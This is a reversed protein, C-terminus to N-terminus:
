PFKCLIHRDDSIYLDSLVLHIAFGPDSPNPNVIVGKGEVFPIFIGLSSYTLPAYPAWFPQLGCHDLPTTAFPEMETITFKISCTNKDPEPWDPDPFPDFDGEVRAEMSAEFVYPPCISGSDPGPTWDMRYNVLGTGRVRNTETREEDNPFSPDFYLIPAEEYIKFDISGVWKGVNSLVGPIDTTYGGEITIKGGGFSPTNGTLFHVINSFGSEVRGTDKGAKVGPAAAKGVSAYSKTAVYFAAGDWLEASLDTQGGLDLTGIYDLTPYPAYYLVYGEADPVDAWSIRVLLGDTEVNVVPADLASGVGSMLPISFLLLLVIGFHRHM